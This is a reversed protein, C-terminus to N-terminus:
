GVLVEVKEVRWCGAGRDPFSTRQLQRLARQQADAEDEGVTDVYGDYQEMPGPISRLWVRFRKMTGLGQLPRARGEDDDRRRDGQVAAALVEAALQQLDSPETAM